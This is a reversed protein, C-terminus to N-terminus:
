SNGPKSGLCVGEKYEMFRAASIRVTSLEVYAEWSKSGFEFPSRWQAIWKWEFNWDPNGGPAVRELVDSLYSSRQPDGEPEGLQNARSDSPPVM